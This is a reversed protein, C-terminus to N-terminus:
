CAESRVPPPGRSGKIGINAEPAFRVHQFERRLWTAELLNVEYGVLCQQLGVFSAIMQKLLFDAL